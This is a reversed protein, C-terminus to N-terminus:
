VEPSMNLVPARDLEEPVGFGSLPVVLLPPSVEVDHDSVKGSSKRIVALGLCSGELSAPSSCLREGVWTGPSAADQALRCLWDVLSALLLASVVVLPDEEVVRVFWLGRRGRRRAETIREGGVVVDAEAEAEVLEERGVGVELLSASAELLAQRVISFASLRVRPGRKSDEERAVGGAAVDPVVAVAEVDV